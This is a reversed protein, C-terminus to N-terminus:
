SIEGHIIKQGDKSLIDGTNSKITKDSLLLDFAEAIDKIRPSNFFLRLSLDKNFEKQIKSFVSIATLSNGGIDFFNDTLRIDKKKLAESWIEHIIKESPTFTVEEIRAAPIFDNNDPEGDKVSQLYAEFLAKTDTKGNKTAPFTHYNLVKEPVMYGPLIKRLESILVSTEFASGEETIVFLIIKNNFKDTRDPILVADKILGTNMVAKRIEGLEVRYGRVKVQDDERGLFEINGDAMWRAKDGTIYLRSSKNFPDTIFRRATLEPDKYYGGALCGGGIYLDGPEGIRSHGMVSNLIYYRANQIPKGYPISKWRPDIKDVIFYNSWITAETAGGLSVIVAEPFVSRVADPM